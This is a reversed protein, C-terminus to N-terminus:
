RRTLRQWSTQALRSSLFPRVVRYAIGPVTVVRKRVLARNAAAVVDEPELWMWGPVKSSLHDLGARRHLDTRVYGPCLAAVRVGSARVELDLSRAYSTAFAKSAAYAASKKMPVFAAISSVIIVEGKGASVMAPVLAECLRTIGATMLYATADIQDRALSGISAALTVGANAVLTEVDDCADILDDVGSASSLDVAIPRARGGLAKVEDSVRSLGSSSRAALIVDSGQAAYHLAFARGIGSSAGTILVSV